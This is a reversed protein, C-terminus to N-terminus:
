QNFMLQIFMSNFSVSQVNMGSFQSNVISVQLIRVPFSLRSGLWNKSIFLHSRVLPCLMFNILLLDLCIDLRFNKAFLTTVGHFSSGCSTTDASETLAKLFLNSSYQAENFRNQALLLLGRVSQTIGVM